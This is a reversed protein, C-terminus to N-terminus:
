CVFVDTHLCTTGITSKEDFVLKKIEDHCSVEEIRDKYLDSTVDIVTKGGVLIFLIVLYADKYRSWDVAPM